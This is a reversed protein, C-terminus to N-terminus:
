SLVAMPDFYFTGSSAGVYLYVNFYGTLFPQPSSLTTQMMFATTSGAGWVSTSDATQNGATALNSAKSGINMIGLPTGSTGLYEVNMWCDANTPVAGGSWIGRVTITVNQTIKTNYVTIPICQFPLIWKANATPIVKWSIPTGLSSGAGGTRVITTEVTQTGTYHYKEQRYNVNASDSRLLFVSQQTSAPTAAVTM